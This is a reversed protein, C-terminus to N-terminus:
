LMDEKLLDYEEKTIEKAYMYDFCLQYKIEGNKYIIKRVKINLKDILFDKIKIENRIIREANNLESLSNRNMYLNDDLIKLAELGKNM